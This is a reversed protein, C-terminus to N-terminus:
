GPLFRVTRWADKVRDRICMEIHILSLPCLAHGSWSMNWEVSGVLARRMATELAQRKYVDLHTYSVPIREADRQWKLNLTTVIAGGPKPRIQLEDLIKNGDEDLHTYSVSTTCLRLSINWRM